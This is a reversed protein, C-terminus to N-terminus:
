NGCNPSSQAVFVYLHITVVNFMMINLCHKVHKVGIMFPFVLLKSGRYFMYKDQKAEMRFPCRQFVDLAWSSEGGIAPCILAKHISHLERLVRSVRLFTWRKNFFLNDDIGYCPNIYGDDPNGMKWILYGDGISPTSRGQWMHQPLTSSELLIQM